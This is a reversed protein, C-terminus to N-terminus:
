TLPPRPLPHGCGLHGMITPVKIFSFETLPSTTIQPTQPCLCMGLPSTLQRSSSIKTSLQSVRLLAQEEVDLCKSCIEDLKQDAPDYPQSRTQFEASNRIVASTIVALHRPIDLLDPLRPVAEKDLVRMTSSRRHLYTEIERHERKNNTVQHNHQDKNATSVVLIYDIMAPTRDSIFGAMGRMYEEKFNKKLAYIQDLFEQCWTTLLEFNREIDKSGKSRRAPDVEIAIKERCLKRIVGGVSAELFAKGYWNMCLEM